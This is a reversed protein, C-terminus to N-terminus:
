SGLEPSIQQLSDIVAIARDGRTAESTSTEGFVLLHSLSHNNKM